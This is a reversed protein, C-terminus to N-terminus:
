NANFLLRCPAEHGCPVSIGKIWVLNTKSAFDWLSLDITVPGVQRLAKPVIIVIKDNMIPVLEREEGRTTAQILPLGQKRITYSILVKDPASDKKMLYLTIKQDDEGVLVEKIKLIGSPHQIIEIGKPDKQTSDLYVAIAEPVKQTDFVAMGKQMIVCRSCTREVNKMQHTVLIGAVGCSLLKGIRDFCKISFNEDGVALVEDLILIDPRFSTAVSFGLRVNMGSSYNQVPTDIFENLGAFDVIEDFKDDIEKKSLGLVSGNIYINERGTLIPNFGAGLAILAGVRGRMEIRGRDPKILGNLMKLLTTKGAGNHGILGLCEGRRLEFSVDNVAWFEGDRLGGTKARRKEGEAKRGGGDGMESRGDGAIDGRGFPSLESAIDCVGYWLSKKLSKCFKKSVGEVRVLVEGQNTEKM